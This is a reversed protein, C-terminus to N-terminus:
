PNERRNDDLVANIEGREAGRILPYPVNTRRINFVKGYARTMHVTRFAEVAEKEYLERAGGDGLRWLAGDCIAPAYVDLVSDPTDITKADTRVAGSLLVYKDGFRACLESVIGNYADLFENTSVSRRRTVRDYINRIEM